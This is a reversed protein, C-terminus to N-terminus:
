KRTLSMVGTGTVFLIKEKVKDEQLLINKNTSYLKGRNFLTFYAYGIVWRTIIELLALM